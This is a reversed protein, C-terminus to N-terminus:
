MGIEARPAKCALPSECCRLARPCRSMRTKRARSNWRCTVPTAPTPWSGPSAITIWNLTYWEGGGYYTKDKVYVTKPAIQKLKDYPDEMFNGTDM